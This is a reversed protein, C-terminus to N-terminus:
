FRRNFSNMGVRSGRCIHVEFVGGIEFPFAIQIKSSGFWRANHGSPRKSDGIGDASLTSRCHLALGATSTNLDWCYAESRNTWVDVSLLEELSCCDFQLMRELASIRFIFKSKGELFFKSLCCRRYGSALLVNQIVVVGSVCFCNKQRCENISEDARCVKRFASNEILTYLLQKM